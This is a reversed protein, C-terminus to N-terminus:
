ERQHYRAEAAWGATLAAVFEVPVGASMVALALGATVLLLMYGAVDRRIRAETDTM